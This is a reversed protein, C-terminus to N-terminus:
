DAPVYTVQEFGADRAAQIAGAVHGIPVDGAARVFLGVPKYLEVLATELARRDHLVQVGLGYVPKGQFRYVDLVQPQFDANSGIDTESVTQLAPSLRDEPRSLVTSVMFYILLLFTLDIMSALNLTIGGPRRRSRPRRIRM